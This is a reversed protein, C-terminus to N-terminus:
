CARGLAFAKKNLELFRPPVSQEIAELWEAETFDVWKSLRGLLVINM